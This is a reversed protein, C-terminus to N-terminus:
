TCMSVARLLILFPLVESGDKETVKGSKQESYLWAQSAAMAAQCGSQRVEQSQSHGDPRGAVRGGPWGAM